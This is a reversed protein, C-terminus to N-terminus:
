GRDNGLGSSSSDVIFKSAELIQERFLLKESGVTGEKDTLAVGSVSVRDTGSSRDCGHCCMILMRM